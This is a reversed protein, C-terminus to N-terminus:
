VPVCAHPLVAATGNALSGGIIFLEISREDRVAKFKPVENLIDLHEGEENLGETLRFM